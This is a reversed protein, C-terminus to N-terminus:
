VWKCYTAILQDLMYEDTAYMYIWSTSKNVIYDEDYGGAITEGRFNAPRDLYFDDGDKSVFKWQTRFEEAMTGKRKKSM